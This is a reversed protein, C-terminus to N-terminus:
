GFGEFLNKWKPMIKEIQYRNAREKSKLSIKKRQEGDRMLETLSLALNNVDNKPVLISGSDKLIESPGTDCDFSVIPLGFALAEILVIGFGEFRSSLCFIEAQQYYKSVNNTAGVLKVSDTLYNKEIFETLTDRDEGEGVIKLTWDPMIKNVQVWAELLMDFGKQPTLRGVALVIKTDEKKIYEQVPFPCPNDISTIKSQHITSKLWNDKDRETLTVVADCYQAARRRLKSRKKGQNVNFNFHEWCIHKVPLGLVAPLTFEVCGIDVAIVINTRENRLIKRLKYIIKPKDSLKNRIRFITNYFNKIDYASVPQRGLNSGSFDILPIIKIDKNVPFFPKDCPGISALVIEYGTESLSNAVMSCVRETGAGNNLGGIVLLIKM